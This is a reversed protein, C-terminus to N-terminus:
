QLVDLIVNNLIPTDFFQRRKNIKGSGTLVSYDIGYIFLFLFRDFFTNNIIKYATRTLMKFQGTFKGM